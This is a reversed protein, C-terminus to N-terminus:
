LVPVSIYKFLFFQFLLIRLFNKKTPHNDSGSGIFILLRTGPRNYHKDLITMKLMSINKPKLLKMILTVVRIIYYKCIVSFLISLTYSSM